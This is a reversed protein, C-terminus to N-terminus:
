KQAQAGWTSKGHEMVFVRIPRKEKASNQCIHDPLSNALANWVRERIRKTKLGYILPNLMPPIVLYFDALLVQTHLPVIDEGLWAMYISVMAPLYYLVMVSVHSGCTSLAKVRADRSPLRFVARLILTYSTAIFTVDTGVIIFSVILSYLSSPMHDACALKAVAMHECYSHPIEHSACYPLHVVMWTMPTMATVARAIIGMGMGIMTRPTLITQYHLPKCIAIYRDFAMALLLGTEVATTAHIIYMQTFCAAFGIIGNGSWFITLIKPTVSTSMVIDVAALVCLFHYMPEHLASDTWIVTVIIVNGLLAISYMASLPVALWLHAAELGPVGLLIFTATNLLTHNFLSGMVPSVEEREEKKVKVGQEGEPPTPILPIGLAGRQPCEFEM